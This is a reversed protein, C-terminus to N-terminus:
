LIVKRFEARSPNSAKRFCIVPESSWRPSLHYFFRMLERFAFAKLPSRARIAQYTTSSNPIPLYVTDAVFGFSTLYEVLTRYTFYRV